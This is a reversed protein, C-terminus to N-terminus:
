TRRYRGPSVVEPDLESDNNAEAYAYLLNCCKVLQPPCCVFPVILCPLHCCQLSFGRRWTSTELPQLVLVISCLYLLDVCCRIFGEAEYVALVKLLYCVVLVNIKVTVRCKAKPRSRFQCESFDKFHCAASIRM